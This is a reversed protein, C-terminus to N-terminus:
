HGPPLSVNMTQSEGPRNQVTSTYTKFGDKRVEIHHMGPALQVTLRSGGGPSDWRQGDITVVADEPQVRLNLTGFDGAQNQTGRPMPEM